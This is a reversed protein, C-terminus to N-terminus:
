GSITIARDTIRKLQSPDHSTWLYARNTDEAQWTQVLLEFQRVTEADLSATPEDLLFIQPSLQLARLFAVIQSEGGSLSSSPQQLFQSSRGLKDLYHLIMERSYTKHRHSKLTFVRQLNFEVTGEWLAPRQHLYIVQTRYEPVSWQSLPKSCFAIEGTQIPDLTAIARLLLSKGSGSPGTVALREGPQVAFTFNRWIWRSEIQRGLNQVELLPYTTSTSVRVSQSAM